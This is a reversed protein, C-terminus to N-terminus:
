KLEIVLYKSMKWFDDPNSINIKDFKGKNNKVIKYSSNPHSSVLLIKKSSNLSIETVERIDIEKFESSNQHIKKIGGIGIFGGEKTIIGKEKLSKRSGTVYYAKHLEADQEGILEEQEENENQLEGVSISLEQIKEDLVTIDVDKQELIIKLEAISQDKHNMEATLRDVMKKLEINKSASKKMKSRLYALKKKNEVVLDYIADIDSNISEIDTETLEIDGSTRTSIIQEKEKIANINTQIEQISKLYEGITEKDSSSIAMLSDVKAQLQKEKETEGCALFLPILLLFLYHKM